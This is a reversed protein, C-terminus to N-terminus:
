LPAVAGLILTHFHCNNFRTFTKGHNSDKRERKEVSNESSEM